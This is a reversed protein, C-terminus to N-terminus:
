QLILKRKQEFEAKDIEGRALREKLYRWPGHLRRTYGLSKTAVREGIAVAACTFEEMLGVARAQRAASALDARLGKAARTRQRSGGSAIGQRIEGRYSRFFQVSQAETRFDAADSRGWM